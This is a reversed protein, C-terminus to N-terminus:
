EFKIVGIDDIGYYVDKISMTGNPKYLVIITPSEFKLVFIYSISRRAFGYKKKYFNWNDSDSLCYRKGKYIVLNDYIPRYGVYVEIFIPKSVNEMMNIRQFDLSDVEKYSYGDFECYQASWTFYQRDKWDYKPYRKKCLEIISDMKEYFPSKAISVVDIKQYERTKKRHDYFKTNAYSYCQVSVFIAVFASVLRSTNRLNLM